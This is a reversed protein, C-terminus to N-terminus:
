RIAASWCLTSSLAQRLKDNKVFKSVISLVSRWAQYRALAPAARLMSAFDLFPVAGLKEYGERYVGASYDLFKRYGEVDEPNLAAIQRNLEKDDNSYDFVTGDPRVMSTARGCNISIGINPCNTLATFNIITGDPGTFVYPGAAPGELKNSQRFSM